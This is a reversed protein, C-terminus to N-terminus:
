QALNPHKEELIATLKNTIDIEDTSYNYEDTNDIVGGFLDLSEKVTITVTTKAPCEDIDNFTVVYTKRTSAEEMFRRMFSEVFKEKIIRITGPQGELCHMSEPDTTQTVGDYGVGVAYAVEDIADIMAAETIEKLLYYDQENDITVESFFNILVIGFIGLVLLLYGWISEKM